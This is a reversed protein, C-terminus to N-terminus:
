RLPFRHRDTRELAIAFPRAGAETECRQRYARNWLVAPMFGPDLPPNVAPSPNMVVIRLDIAWTQRNRQVIRCATKVERRISESQAACTWV